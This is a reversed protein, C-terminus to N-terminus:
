LEWKMQLKPNRLEEFEGMKRLAGVPPQLRTQSCPKLSWSHHWCCHAPVGTGLSSQRGKHGSGMLCGLAPGWAGAMHYNGTSCCPLQQDCNLVRFLGHSGSSIGTPDPFTGHLFFCFSERGETHIRQRM